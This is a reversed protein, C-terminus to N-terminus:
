QRERGPSIEFSVAGATDVVRVRVWDVRPHGFSEVRTLNALTTGTAPDRLPKDVRYVHTDGHALLVQGTFKLTESVLLSIFSTYGRRVRLSSGIPNAHILVVLARAQQRRAHAFSQKLWDRAAADRRAHEGPMRQANNDGGPLNFGAFVVHGLTWRVHEPYPAAAAADSQRLLALPQGGLSAGQAFFLERLKALRELPDYGGAPLRWCDAWDNDGPLYILAHRSAAFMQQRQRFVADGCSTWGHKFDGVHVVFAVDERDIERLLSGFAMEEEPSYPADGVLAFSFSAALLAGPSALLLWAALWARLRM